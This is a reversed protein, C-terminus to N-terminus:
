RNMKDFYIDKDLRKQLGHIVGICLAKLKKIKDKEMFLIYFPRKLILTKILYKDKFEPYTKKLYIFNRCIYYTRIPPYNLSKPNWFLFRKSIPHGLEHKMRVSPVQMIKGKNRHIRLTFENDIADMVFKENFFGIRKFIETRYVSGSIMMGSVEKLEETSSISTTLNPVYVYFPDVSNREIIQLYQKFESPFFMSDQDMSLLHTYNNRCAYDVAENLAQGIGVNRGHRIRVVKEKEAESLPLDTNGPTNDWIILGDLENIFSAINSLINKPPHYLTIIGLVKM